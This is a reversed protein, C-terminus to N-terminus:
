PRLRRAVETLSIPGEGPTQVLDDGGVPWIDSAFLVDDTRHPGSNGARLVLLVRTDLAPIAVDTSYWSDCGSTGGVVGIPRTGVDGSLTRVDALTLPTWLVADIADGASMVPRLGDATTWRAADRRAVTGVVVATTNTRMSAITMPARSSGGSITVCDGSPPPGSGGPSPSAPLGAARADTPAPTVSAGASCGSLAVAVVAALLPLRRRM